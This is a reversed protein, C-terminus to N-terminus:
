EPLRAFAERVYRMAVPVFKLFDPNGKVRDLYVFRGTDKLKRQVTMLDFVRRFEVEALRPGGLAATAALYRRVLEDILAPDLEVYSDRLLSVLDYARCGLLADQFDIVAQEGGALVMVNRAQYDRHTFGPPQEALYGAIAQFQHRVTEHEAGPLAIGKAAGLGYDLFHELEREYLDADYRRRFAVCNQDPAADARVRMRALQDVADRYASPRSRGNASSVLMTDGLDELVAYGEGVSWAILEPVRVGIRVLYRQIEVFPVLGLPMGGKSIEDSPADPPLVMVVVSARRGKTPVRWYSRSSAHGALRTVPGAPTAKTTQAVLDRLWGESPARM